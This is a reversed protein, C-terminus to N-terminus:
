RLPLHTSRRQELIRCFQNASNIIRNLPNEDEVIHYKLSIFDLRLDEEPMETKAALDVIQLFCLFQAKAVFEFIRIDIVQCGLPTFRQYKFKYYQDIAYNM